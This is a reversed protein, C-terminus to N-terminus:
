FYRTLINKTKFIEELVVTKQSTRRIDLYGRDILDLLTGALSKRDILGDYLVMRVHAPRLNSPLERNYLNINLPKHELKRFVLNSRLFVLIIALIAIVITICKEKTNNYVIGPLLAMMIPWISILLWIFILKFNFKGSFYIRNLYKDFDIASFCDYYKLLAKLYSM